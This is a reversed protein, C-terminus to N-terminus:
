QSVLWPVNFNADSAIPIWVKGSASVLTLVPYTRNQQYRLGISFVWRDFWQESILEPVRTGKSFGILGFNASVLAENNQPLYFGDRLAKFNELSQPGYMSCLLTVTETYQSTFAINDGDQINDNYPFGPADVDSITFALWNALVTPRKPPNVQYEPRVLSGDFGSIGVLVTQLFQTFTLNKPLQEPVSGLYGGSASNNTTM